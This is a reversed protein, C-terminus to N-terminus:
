KCTSTDPITCVSNACLAPSTCTPGNTANCAAGDAAPAICTGTMVGSASCKSAATCLTYGGNVAGCPMGAGAYGALACVGATLSSPNCFLGQSQDCNGGALTPTCSQGAGPAMQCAGNSCSLGYACPHNDDCTAGQAARAVCASGACVLGLDCDEDATCAAGSQGPETCTGCVTNAPKKCLGGKCQFSDGCATGDVLTGGTAKCEDPLQRSYIASCTLTMFKKSCAELKSPTLATKSDQLTPTCALLLRAECSAEDGYAIKILPAGCSMTQTCIAKVYSKCAEEASPGSSGCGAVLAALVVLRRM